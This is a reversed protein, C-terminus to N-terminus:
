KAILADRADDVSRSAQHTVGGRQLETGLLKGYISRYGQAMRATDYERGHGEQWAVVAQLAKGYAVQDSLIRLLEEYVASASSVPLLWGAGHERIREGVAGIDFGLVPLGAAWLETLTHCYTEPWISLIMGLDPKLSTIINIADERQYTGHMVARTGALANDANGIVHIELREERDLELLERIIKSGKAAGINGPVVIRLTRPDRQHQIRGFSAFDRGHPIIRFDAGRLWEFHGLLLDRATESTTVFAASKKIQAGLMARWLHVWKHKLPVPAENRWLEIRCSGAGPTCTGGCYVLDQDLLKISPCVLYFDHLSLVVPVNLVAAVDFLGVSHWCFHRIHILDIAYTVLWEALLGDYESSRHTAMSVPETFSHEALVARGTKSVSELVLKVNDSRLLLTEHDDQLSSMLDMNTQPTGGTEKSIVFLLRPKAKAGARQFFRFASQARSQMAQIDLSSFGRRVLDSYEPYTADIRARGARLNEEKAGGFSASRVHHVFSRDDILHVWGRRLARMCFDNEEGYGIPFAEADLAGVDALCDSRMYLCFGHGTPVRPWTPASSQRVVREAHTWDGDALSSGDHGISFPGANDSLPTVTGINTDSYAALQLKQIWSRNVETDSNLLIVDDTGAMAIGLNCSRTFGLNAENNVVVFHEFRGYQELLREIRDDTSKDNICIIRCQDPSSWALVSALCRAVENLANYIPIVVSVRPRKIGLAHAAKGIRRTAQSRLGAFIRTAKVEDVVQGTLRWRLQLDPAAAEPWIPCQGFVEDFGGGSTCLGARVLDGRRKSASFSRVRTGDMFVDLNLHYPFDESVAWGALRGDSAIEIKARVRLPPIIIPLQLTPSQPARRAEIVFGSGNDLGHQGIADIIDAIPIRAVHRGGAEKFDDPSMRRIERGSISFSVAEQGVRETSMLVDGSGDQELRMDLGVAAPLTPISAAPAAPTALSPRIVRRSRLIVKPAAFSFEANLDLLQFGVFILDNEGFLDSQIQGAAEFSQGSQVAVLKLTKVLRVQAADPGALIALWQLQEKRIPLDISIKWSDCQNLDLDSPIDAKWIMRIQSINGSVSVDYKQGAYGPLPQQKNIQINQREDRHKIYCAPLDASLVPLQVMETIYSKENLQSM